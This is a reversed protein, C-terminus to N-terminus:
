LPDEAATSQSLVYVVPVTHPLDPHNCMTPIHIGAQVAAELVTSDEPVILKEGNITLNVM